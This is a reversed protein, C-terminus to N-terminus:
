LDRYRLGFKGLRKNVDQELVNLKKKQRDISAKLRKIDTLVTELNAM